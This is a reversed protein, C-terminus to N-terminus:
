EVEPRMAPTGDIADLVAGVDIGDEDTNTFWEAIADAEHAQRLVDTAEILWDAESWLAAEYRELDAQMADGKFAAARLTRLAEVRVRQSMPEPM